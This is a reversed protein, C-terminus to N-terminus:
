TGCAKLLASQNLNENTATSQRTDDAKASTTDASMVENVSNQLLLVLDDSTNPHLALYNGQAVTDHPLLFVPTIDDLRLGAAAIQKYVSGSSGVILDVREYAFPKVRGMKEPFVLLNQGVDFGITKFLPLYLSDSSIGVKYNLLDQQKEVKIFVNKTLRYLCSKGSLLPGVWKFQEERAASKATSVLGSPQNQHVMRMARQWPLMTFECAVDALQCAQRLIEINLGTIHGDRSYNYPPFEETYIPLTLQHAHTNFASLFLIGTSKIVCFAVFYLHFKL